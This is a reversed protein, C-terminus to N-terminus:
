LSEGTLIQTIKKPIDTNLQIGRFMDSYPGYAFVLVPSPTHSASEGEKFVFNGQPLGEESLRQTLTLGGTEHDATIIVLTHKDKEAFRIAAEVALDFDLVESVVYPFDHDHGGWDIQAGEVMMFFGRGGLSNLFDFAFAATRPLFDGRGLHKEKLETDRAIIALRKDQSSSMKCDTVVKFGADVLEILLEPRHKAIHQVSGGGFFSLVSQPLDGLIAASMKRNKQHAYFASPTAGDLNDTTLIGTKWGLPALYESINRLPLSDIGVGIANNYTRKGTSYATGAAASDTTFDSASQTLVLGINKLNTITLAENNSYLAAAVQSLGMGDGILLIVNRVEGRSGDITFDPTYAEHVQATAVLTGLLLVITTFLKKM